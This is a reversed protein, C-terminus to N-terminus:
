SLRGQYLMLEANLISGGAAGRITNHGLLAYRWDLVNCPRVRGVVTAMGGGTMRDLRPQPRDMAERVVIAPDPASPLGLEQPLRRYERFVEVIQERTAARSFAISVAEFHGDLVPVRHCHASIHFDAFRVRGNELAGLIKLPETHMKKEEGYTHPVLNDILDMSPVGPYGAGSAAQMSVVMVQEIGFALQLPHLTCILHTATCNANCVLFGEWGRNAQQIEILNLHEPNVEAIVLPVDDAMRYASANSFLFHGKAAFAPELERAQAAPLASFLVRADAQGPQALRVPLEAVSAPLPADLVWKVVDGYRKGASRESALLDTIQFWPHEALLSIFRQGVAGTAGLIGVPIRSM